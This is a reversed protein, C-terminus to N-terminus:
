NARMKLTTLHRRINDEIFRLRIAYSYNPNEIHEDHEAVIAPVYHM